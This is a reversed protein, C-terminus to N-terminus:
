SFPKINLSTTKIVLKNITGKFCSNIYNMQYEDIRDIISFYFYDIHDIFKLLFHVNQYSDSKVIFKKIKKMPPFGNVDM